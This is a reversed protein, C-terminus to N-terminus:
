TFSASAVDAIWFMEAPTGFPLNLGNDGIRLQDEVGLSTKIPVNASSVTIKDVAKLGFSADDFRWFLWNASELHTLPHPILAFSDLDIWTM